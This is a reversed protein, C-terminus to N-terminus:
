PDLRKKGFAGGKRAQAVVRKACAKMNACVTIFAQRVEHYERFGMGPAPSVSCKSCDTRHENDGLAQESHM